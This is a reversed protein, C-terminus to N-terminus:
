WARRDCQARGDRRERTKVIKGKVPPRQTMSSQEMAWVARPARGATQAVAVTITRKSKAM